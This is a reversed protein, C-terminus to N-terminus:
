WESPGCYEDFDEYFSKKALKPYRESLFKELKRFIREREAERAIESVMGM